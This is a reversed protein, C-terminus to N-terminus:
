RRLTAVAWLLLTLVASLVLGTVIPFVFTFGPRSIVVDGPLLRGGRGGFALGLGVTVLGLLILALGAWILTRDM